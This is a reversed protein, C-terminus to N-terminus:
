LGGLENVVRQFYLTPGSSINLLVSQLLYLGAAKSKDNKRTHLGMWELSSATLSNQWANKMSRPGTSLCLCWLTTAKRASEACCLVFFNQLQVKKWFLGGGFLVKSLISLLNLRVTMLVCLTIIIYLYIFLFFPFQKIFWQFGLTIAFIIIECYMTSLFVSAGFCYEM